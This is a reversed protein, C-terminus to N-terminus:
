QNKKNLREEIIMANSLEIKAEKKRGMCEHIGSLHKLIYVAYSDKVEDNSTHSNLLNFAKTLEAEAKMTEHALLHLEALEIFVQVTDIDNSVPAAMLSMEANQLAEYFADQAKKQHTNVLTEM